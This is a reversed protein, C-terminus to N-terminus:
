SSAEVGALRAYLGSLTEMLEKLSAGRIYALPIRELEALEVALRDPRAGHMVVARPKLMSIRIAVMPSRGHKVGTFILARESTHGFIQLFEWGSLTYIAKISDILTYGYIPKDAGEGCAVIEAGLEGCFEGVSIPRPFERIDIIADSKLRELRSLEMILRGGRAMDISLLARVWRRIFRTGPRKRRGSEYDSIVSPSVGMVRALEVQSVHFLERWKRMAEPPRRAMIVDGVIMKALFERVDRGPARVEM